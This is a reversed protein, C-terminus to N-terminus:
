AAGRAALPRASGRVAAQAQGEDVLASLVGLVVCLCSRSLVWLALVPLGLKWYDGFRDGDPEMAILNAPTAVRRMYVRSAPSLRDASLEDWCLERSPRLPVRPPDAVTGGHSLRRASPPRAGRRRPRAVPPPSSGRAPTTAPAGERAPLAAERDRAASRRSGSQTRHRLPRLALVYRRDAEEGLVVRQGAEAVPRNRTRLRTDVANRAAVPAAVVQEPRRQCAGGDGSGRFSAAQGCPEPDVAAGGLLRLARLDVHRPVPREVVEVRAQVPM